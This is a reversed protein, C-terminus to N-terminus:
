APSICALPVLALSLVGAPCSRPGMGFPKPTASGQEGAGADAGREPDWHWSRGTTSHGHAAALLDFVFYTGTDVARALQEDGATCSRAAEAPLLASHFSCAAVRPQGAIPPYVRLTERLCSEVLPGKGLKLGGARDHAVAAAAAEKHLAEQTIGDHSHRPRAPPRRPPPLSNLFRPDPSLPPLLCSLAGASQPSFSVGAACIGDVRGFSPLRRALSFALQGPNRDRVTCCM